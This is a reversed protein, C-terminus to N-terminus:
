IKVLFLSKKIRSNKMESSKERANKKNSNFYSLRQKIIHIRIKFVGMFYIKIIIFFKYLSTLQKLLFKIRFTKWILSM